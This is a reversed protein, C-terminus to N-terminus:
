HSLNNALAKFYSFICIRVYFNYLKHTAWHWQVNEHIKKGILNNRSFFQIVWIYCFFIGISFNTLIREEPFTISFLDNSVFTNKRASNPLRKWNCTEVKKRAERFSCQTRIKDGEIMQCFFLLFDSSRSSVESHWVSQLQPTLGSSFKKKNKNQDNSRLKWNVLYLNAPSLQPLM